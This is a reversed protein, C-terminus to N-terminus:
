GILDVGYDLSIAQGAMDTADRGEAEGYLIFHSIAGNSRSGLFDPLHADIYAAVDPNASLYANPDFRDFAPGPSRGEWVGFLNFHRFLALDDLHLAGLDAWKNAYYAADFWSNPQRHQTAGSDAYSQWATALTSSPVLAPYELLYYVPDFLFHDLAGYAPTATLAPRALEFSKDTFELREVGTLTDIGDAGSKDTVRWGAGTREVRYGGSPRAHLATDIGAGGDIADNGSGGQLRDHGDGGSLRAEGSSDTLVDNGATGLVEDTVGRVTLAVQYANSAGAPDSVRFAFGDAGVYNLAPMYTFQGDAQITVTGHSAGSAQTYVVPDGDADTAVPLRGSIRADEDTAIATISSVPADNVAAIMVSVTASSSLSGDSVTYTFSDNGAYRNAPTYTYQGRAGITVSGHAPNSAKAYGLADGDVDTAPPLTGSLAVNELSGLSAANAIPRDNVASVTLSVSTSASLSGDSALYVFSDVGNFNGAPTYTFQGSPKPM